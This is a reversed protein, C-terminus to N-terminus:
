NQDILNFQTIDQTFVSTTDDFDVGNGTFVGVVTGNGQWKVFGINQAVWGFATYTRNPEGPISITLTFKIRIAEVDRSPSLNLTLTEKGDYAAKVTVPDFSIAPASINMRFLTWTSNDEVPFILLQIEDDISLYQLYPILEPSSAVLGTTDLYYYVGANSKRFYMSDIIESQGSLILSDIQIQYTTPGINITGSYQSSRTGSVQSGNSDTRSVDYKYYANESAPFYTSDAVQTGGGNGVPNNDSEKCANFMYATIVILVFSLIKIKM